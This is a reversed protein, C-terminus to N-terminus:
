EGAKMAQEQARRLDEEDNTERYTEGSATGRGRGKRHAKVIEEREQPTTDAMLRGYSYDHLGPLRKRREVELVLAAMVHDTSGMQM